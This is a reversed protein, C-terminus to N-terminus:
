RPTVHRAPMVIYNTNPM